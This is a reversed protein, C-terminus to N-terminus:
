KSENDLSHWLHLCATTRYPKWTDAIAIIKSPPADIPLNYINEIAKQLGRDGPAFVDSRGLTFM